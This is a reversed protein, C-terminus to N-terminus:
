FLKATIYHLTKSHVEEPSANVVITKIKYMAAAERFGGVVRRMYEISQSEFFDLTAQERENRQALLTQESAEYCVILNPLFIALAEDVAVQGIEMPLGSGFVQYAIISLPSRDILCIYGDALRPKLDDELASYMALMIYLDTLPSRELKPNLSVERLAEGIKTGGSLRSTHVKHGKEVLARKTFEIQTTKGVGDPGDFMILLGRRTTKPTPHMM